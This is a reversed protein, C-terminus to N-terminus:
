AGPEPIPGAWEAPMNDVRGSGFPTWYGLHEENGSGENGYRVEVCHPKGYIGAPPRRWYWGPETPPENSWRLPEYGATEASAPGRKSEDNQRTM